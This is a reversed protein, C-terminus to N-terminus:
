HKVHFLNICEEEKSCMIELQKSTKDNYGLCHLLGHSLLRLTENEITQRYSKANAKLAQYSIYSEAKIVKSETYDFTLIDTDTNHKLYEQNLNAMTHSDVFNYELEEVSYGEQNAISKLWLALDEELFCLFNNHNFRILRKKCIYFLSFVFYKM